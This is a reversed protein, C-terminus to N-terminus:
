GLINIVGKTDKSLVETDNTPEMVPLFPLVSVKKDKFYNIGTGQALVVQHSTRPLAVVTITDVRGAVASRFLDLTSDSSEFSENDKLTPLLSRDIVVYKNKGKVGMSKFSDVITNVLTKNYDKAEIGTPVTKTWNFETM